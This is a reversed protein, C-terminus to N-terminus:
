KIILYHDEYTVELNSYIKKICTYVLEYEEIGFEDNGYFPHFKYIKENFYQNTGKKINFNIIDCISKIVNSVAEERTIISMIPLRPIGTIGSICLIESNEFCTNTYM